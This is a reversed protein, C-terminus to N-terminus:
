FKLNIVIHTDIVVLKPDSFDFKFKNKLDPLRKRSIKIKETPFKHHPWSFTTFGFFFIEKRLDNRPCLGVM